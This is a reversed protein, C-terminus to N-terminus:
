AVRAAAAEIGPLAGPDLVAPTGSWYVDALTALGVAGPSLIVSM